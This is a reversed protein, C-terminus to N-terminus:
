ELRNEVRETRERYSDPNPCRERNGHCPVACALSLLKLYELLEGGQDPLPPKQRCFDPRTSFHVKRDVRETRM